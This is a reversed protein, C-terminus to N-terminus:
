IINGLYRKGCKNCDYGRDFYSFSNQNHQGSFWHIIRYIIKKM